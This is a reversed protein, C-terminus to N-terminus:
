RRDVLAEEELIADQFLDVPPAQHNLGKTELPVSEEPLLYLAIGQYEQVQELSIGATSVLGVIGRWFILFPM